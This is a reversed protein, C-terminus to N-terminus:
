ENDTKEEVVATDVAVPEVATALKQKRKNRAYIIFTPTYFLALLIIGACLIVLYHLFWGGANYIFGLPSSSADGLFCWDAGVIVNLISIFISYGFLVCFAWLSDIPKPKYIKSIIMYLSFIIMLSHYLFSIFPLYEGNVFWYETKGLVTSPYALVILGAVLGVVFTYPKLFQAIKNKGFAVFPAVILITHCLNLPYTSIGIGDDALLAMHKVFELSLIAIALGRLVWTKAKESKNRFMFHLFILMGVIFVVSVALGILHKRGFVASDVTYDIAGLLSKM